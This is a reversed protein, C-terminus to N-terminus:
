ESFDIFYSKGSSFHNEKELSKNLIYDKKPIIRFDLSFRIEDSTNIGAGHILNGSFLASCDEPVILRKNKQLDVGGIITKPSYLFGIKHGSSFKKTHTDNKNETIINKSIIKQSEPIYQITNNENVGLIPTWINYCLHGLASYFSERHWGINESNSSKIPRAARLYCNSQILFDDNLYSFVKDKLSVSLLKVINLDNIQNQTSSVMERFSEIELENYKRVDDNFNSKIIKRIDLLLQKNKHEMISISSEDISIKNIM